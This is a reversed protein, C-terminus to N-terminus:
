KKSTVMELMPEIIGLGIGASIGGDFPLNVGTMFRSEDSALYHFLAAIEEPKAIRGLPTLYETLALEVEGTETENIPTDITGPCICNVRIGRPALELAANRTLGIVAAKSAAYAGYTPFGLLGAMSSTNIISGGDSMVAAAHKIGFLVGKTNVAIHRDFIEETIETIEAGVGIGANNVVIDLHGYQKVATEMLMKVQEESTVDVKVFIGGSTEAFQTSDQIDAFVVKAGAQAYRQATCKGIGSSAGTVVAVKGEL